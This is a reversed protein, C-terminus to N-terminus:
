NPWIDLLKNVEEGRNPATWYNLNVKAKNSDYNVSYVIYYSRQLTFLAFYVCGINESLIAM